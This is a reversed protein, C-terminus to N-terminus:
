NIKKTKKLKSYDVLLRSPLGCHDHATWCKTRPETRHRALDHINCCKKKNIEKERRQKRRQNFLRCLNKQHVDVRVGERKAIINHPIKNWIAPVAGFFGQKYIDLSKAKDVSQLLNNRDM